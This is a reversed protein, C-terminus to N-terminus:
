EALLWSWAAGAQALTFVRSKSRPVQLINLAMNIFKYETAGGGIAVVLRTPAYNPYELVFRRSKELGYALPPSGFPFQVMYRVTPSTPTRDRTVMIFCDIVFDMTLRTSVATFIHFTSPAIERMRGVAPKELLDIPHEYRHPFSPITLAEETLVVM